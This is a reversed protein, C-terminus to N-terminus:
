LLEHPISQGSLDANNSNKQYRDCDLKASLGPNV